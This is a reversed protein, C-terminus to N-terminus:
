RPPCRARAHTRQDRLAARTADNGGSAARGHTHPACLPGPQSGRARPGIAPACLAIRRPRLRRRGRAGGCTQNILPRNAARAPGARQGPATRLGRSAADLAVGAGTIGLGIVVLDVTRGDTAWALEAARRAGNLRSDGSM